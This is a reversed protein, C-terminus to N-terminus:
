DDAAGMVVIFSQLTPHEPGTVSKGLSKVAQWVARVFPDWVPKGAANALVSGTNGPLLVVVDRINNM